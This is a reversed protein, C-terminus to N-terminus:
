PSSLAAQLGGGRSPLLEQDMVKLPPPISGHGGGGHGANAREALSIMLTLVALGLVLRSLVRRWTRPEPTSLNHSKM